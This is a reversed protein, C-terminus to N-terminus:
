QEPVYKFNCDASVEYKGPAKAPDCTFKMTFKRGFDFEGSLNTIPFSEYPTGGIKPTIAEMDFRASQGDFRFPINELDIDMAPMNSMFNAKIMTLKLRRTEVNFDLKYITKDSEYSIGKENTSTTKGFIQQKSNSSIVAHRMNITYYIVFGPSYSNDVVRELLLLNFSSFVITSGSNVKAPLNTGSVKIYGDPDVTWPIDSLTITPYTTGDTTRLNNITVEATLKTYNLRLSYGVQTYSADVDTTIDRVYAFCDPFRQETITDTDSSSCSTLLMLSAIFAGFFALFKNM